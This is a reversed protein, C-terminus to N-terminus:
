LSFDCCVDVQHVMLQFVATQFVFYKRHFVSHKVVEGVFNQVIAVSYFGVQNQYHRM